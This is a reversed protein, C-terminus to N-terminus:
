ACMRQQHAEHLRVYAPCNAMLEAHTGVAVIRGAEMMVIRDAIELTNVQHTIVFVNRGAKYEILARHIAVVSEPDGQNTAEDLILISPDRLMARALAVRQKQGGSLGVGDKGIRSQYGQNKWQDVRAVIFDHAHARRAAEEVQEPTARRNGFAVNEHITGEFLFTDQTVLGIQKRLSRLQVKRLNVGDLLVSGHTPDYFRPLLGLLTSKGCGNAGVFAITEGARVSLNIQSLV